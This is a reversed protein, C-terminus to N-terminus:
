FQYSLKQGVKLGLARARGSEIELVFNSPLRPEMVKPSEGEQPPPVNEALEVIRQNDLWIIDIPFRMNKMWFSHPIRKEFVFLMGWGKELKDRKGLGLSRKEPTDSVEVPISVGKPTIVTAHAYKFEQALAGETIFSFLLFVVASVITLSKWSSM